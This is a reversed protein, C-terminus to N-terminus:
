LAGAWRAASISGYREVAADVVRELTAEDRGNYFKANRLGGELFDQFVELPVKARIHALAHVDSEHTSLLPYFFTRPREAPAPIVTASPLILTPAAAAKRFLVCGSVTAGSVLALFGRRGNM